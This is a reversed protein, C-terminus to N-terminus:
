ASRDFRHPPRRVARAPVREDTGPRAYKGDPTVHLFRRAILAELVEDCTEDDLGWLRQAQLSTLQLGPMEIFEAQVNSILRDHQPLTSGSM